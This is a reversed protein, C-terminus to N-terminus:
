SFVGAGGLVEPVAFVKSGTAQGLQAGVRGVGEAVVVQLGRLWRGGGCCGAWRCSAQVHAVPSRQRRLQMSSNVARRCDPRAM